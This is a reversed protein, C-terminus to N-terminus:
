MAANGVSWRAKLSIYYWIYRCVCMHIWQGFSMSNILTFSDEVLYNVVSYCVSLFSLRLDLFALVDILRYIVLIVVTLAM